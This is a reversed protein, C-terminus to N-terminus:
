AVRKELRPGVADLVTKPQRSVLELLRLAAGSPKRTGQEWSRATALPVNLLSAFVPQSVHLKERIAFIDRARLLPAPKALRLITTRMTIKRKGELADAHGRLSELLLNVDFAIEKVRETKKASPKKSENSKM